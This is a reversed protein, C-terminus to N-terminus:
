ELNCSIQMAPHVEDLNVFMQIEPRFGSQCDRVRAKTPYDAPSWLSQQREADVTKKALDAADDTVTERAAEVSQRASELQRQATAMAAEAIVVQQRYDSDDVRALVTGAKVAVGEDFPRYVIRSQVTKFSLVSEHAEIDGSVVLITDSGTGGFWGSYRALGAVLALVILSLYAIGPGALIFVAARALWGKPKM